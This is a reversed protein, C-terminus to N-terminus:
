FMSKVFVHRDHEGYDIEGRRTQILARKTPKNGLLTESSPELPPLFLFFEAGCPPGAAAGFSRKFLPECLCLVRNRSEPDVESDVEWFRGLISWLRDRIDEAEEEEEEM